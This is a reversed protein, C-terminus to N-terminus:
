FDAVEQWSTVNISPSIADIIVKVKRVITGVTGTATITRNQGTLKTVTYTCTGQGLTLNGTGEFPTSDRIQQLAEEACANALAKTQNSQELSFSTRSSGLGLLLLSVCIAVGIAGVVLVTILAIYGKSERFSASGSASYRPVKLRATDYIRRIIQVGGPKGFNILFGLKYQTNRLYHWFQSIDQKTIFTSAKIEVLITDNVVFDPTYTGVTKGNVKVPIRVERDVKLHRDKLKEFLGRQYIVEKHQCGLEKYLEFCVGRILCSDEQYLLSNNIM